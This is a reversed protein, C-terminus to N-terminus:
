VGGSVLIPNAIENLRADVKIISKQLKYVTSPPSFSANTPSSPIDPEENGDFTQL